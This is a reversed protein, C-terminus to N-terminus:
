GKLEHGFKHDKVLKKDLSIDRGPKTPLQVSQAPVFPEMESEVKEVRQKLESARVELCKYELKQNGQLLGHPSNILTLKPV